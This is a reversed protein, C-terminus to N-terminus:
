GEYYSTEIKSILSFFSNQMDTLPRVLVLVFTWIINGTM